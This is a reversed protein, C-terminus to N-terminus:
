LFSTLIETSIMLFNSLLYYFNTFHISFSLFRYFKVFFAILLLTQQLICHLFALSKHICEKSIRYFLFSQIDTKNLSRFLGMRLLFYKEVGSPQKVKEYKHHIIPKVERRYSNLLFNENLKHIGFIIIINLKKAATNITFM